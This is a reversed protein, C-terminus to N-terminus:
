IAACKCLVIASYPALLIKNIPQECITLIMRVVKEVFNQLFFVNLNEATKFYATEKLFAV